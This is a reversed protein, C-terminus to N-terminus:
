FKADLLSQIRLGVKIELNPSLKGFTNRVLHIQFVESMSIESFETFSRIILYLCPLFYRPGPIM